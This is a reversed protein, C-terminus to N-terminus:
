KSKPPKKRQLNCDVCSIRLEANMLHYELWTREFVYDTELFCPRNTGDNDDVFETPIPIKIDSCEISELFEKVLTDFYIIHDVHIKETKKGCLQCINNTNYKRKYDITQQEISKRMAKILKEKQTDSKSNICKRWSIDIESDDRKIIRLEFGNKMANSTLRLNFMDKSKIDYNPHRKILELFIKYEIPYNKKIDKCEKITNIINTIYERFSKISVFIRNDFKVEQPM